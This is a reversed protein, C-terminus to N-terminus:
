GPMYTYDSKSEPGACHLAARHPTISDDHQQTQRETEGEGKM